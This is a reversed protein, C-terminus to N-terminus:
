SHTALHQPLRSGKQANQKNKERGKTLSSQFYGTDNIYLLVSYREWYYYRYSKRALEKIKLKLNTNSINM